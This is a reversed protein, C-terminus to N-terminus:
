EYYCFFQYLFSCPFFPFVPFFCPFLIFFLIFYFFHLPRLHLFPSLFLFFSSSSSALLLFTTSIVQAYSLTPPLSRAGLATPRRLTASPKMGDLKHSRFSSSRPNMGDLAQSRSPLAGSLSLLPLPKM